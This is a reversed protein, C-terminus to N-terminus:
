RGLHSIVLPATILGELFAAVITLTVGAAVAKLDSTWSTTPLSEDKVLRLLDYGRLGVAGCIWFGVLEPLFHPGLAIWLGSAPNGATLFARTMGGFNVGKAITVLVTSTGATLVGALTIMLVGLNAQLISTVSVLPSPGAQGSAFVSGPVTFAWICGLGYLLVVVVLRKLVSTM